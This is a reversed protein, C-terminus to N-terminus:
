PVLQWAERAGVSMGSQCWSGPAVAIWAEPAVATWAGRSGSCDLGGQLWEVGCVCCWFFPLGVLVGGVSVRCGLALLVAM